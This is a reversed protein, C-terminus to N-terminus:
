APGADDPDRLDPDDVLAARAAGVLYRSGAVGVPWVSSSVARESAAAM